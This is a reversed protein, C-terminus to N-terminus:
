AAPSSKKRFRRPVAWELFGGTWDDDRLYNSYRILVDAVLAVFLLADLPMIPISVPGIQYCDGDALVRLMGGTVIKGLRLSASMTVVAFIAQGFALGFVTFISVGTISRAVIGFRNLRNQMGSWLLGLFPYLLLLYCRIVDDRIGTRHNGEREAVAEADYTHFLRSGTHQGEPWPKLVYRFAYPPKARRKDALYHKKDEFYVPVKDFERVDWDSMEHKAEIIVEEATMTVQDPGIHVVNQKPASPQPQM